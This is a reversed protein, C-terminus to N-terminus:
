LLYAEIQLLRRNHPDAALRMGELAYAGLLPLTDEDGFVIITAAQRGAARIQTEGIDREIRRGDALTFEITESPEIELRNLLYTPMLSYTAGTDVIPNVLEFRTGSPNGIEVPYRFTGM